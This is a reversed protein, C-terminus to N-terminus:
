LGASNSPASSANFLTQNNLETSRLFLRHREELRRKTAPAAHTYPASMLSANLICKPHKVSSPSSKEDPRPVSQNGGPLAPGLPQPSDPDGQKPKMWWSLHFFISSSQCSSITPLLQVYVAKLLCQKYFLQLSSILIM